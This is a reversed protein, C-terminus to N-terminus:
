PEDHVLDATEFFQASSGRKEAWRQLYTILQPNIAVLAEIGRYTREVWWVQTLCWGSRLVKKVEQICSPGELELWELEAIRIM